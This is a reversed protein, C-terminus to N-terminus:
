WNFIQDMKFSYIAETLVIFILYLAFLIFPALVTWRFNKKEDGLHMYSMVIYFAKVITLTIFTILLFSKAEPTRSFKFGLGVEVITVVLLLWFVKWIVARKKKGEEENHHHHLAPEFVDDRIM